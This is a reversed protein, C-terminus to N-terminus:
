SQVGLFPTHIQASLGKELEPNILALKSVKHTPVQALQLSPVGFFHSLGTFSNQTFLKAESPANLVEDIFSIMLAKGNLLYSFSKFNEKLSKFLSEGQVLYWIGKLNEKKGYERFIKEYRNKSKLSLEMEIAWTELIGNIGNRRFTMLGDPILKNLSGKFSYKKYIASRLEHEPVWSEYLKFKSLMQRLSSLKYDHALMAKNWTNKYFEKEILKGGKHDISWLLEFSELGQVRKILREGELLRLRKLVTTMAVDKFFLNGVQKTSILGLDCILKLLEIDRNQLRL